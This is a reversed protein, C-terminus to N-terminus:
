RHMYGPYCNPGQSDPNDFVRAFVEGSLILLGRINLMPAKCIVAWTQIVTFQSVCVCM